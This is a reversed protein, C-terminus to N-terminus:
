VPVSQDAYARLPGEVAARRLPAPDRRGPTRRAAGRASSHAASTSPSSTSSEIPEIPEGLVPEGPVPAQPVAGGFALRAPDARPDRGGARRARNRARKATPRRRAATGHPEGSQGAARAGSCSRSCRRQARASPRRSCTSTRAAARRTPRGLAGAPRAGRGPHGGGRPALALTAGARRTPRSSRPRAAEAGHARDEQGARDARSGARARPGRPLPKLRALEEVAFGVVPAAAAGLLARLRTPAPPASPPAHGEPRAVAAHAVDLPLRQPREALASLLRRAPARPRDARGRRSAHIADGWGAGAADAATLSDDGADFALLEWLEHELLGPRPRAARSRALGRAPQGAILGNLYRM